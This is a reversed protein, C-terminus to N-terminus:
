ARNVRREVCSFESFKERGWARARSLAMEVEWGESEM